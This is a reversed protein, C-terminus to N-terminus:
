TLKVIIQEEYKKNTIPNDPNNGGRENVAKGKVPEKGKTGKRFWEYEIDVHGIDIAQYGIKYLDYALVTATPGLAILILVNDHKPVNRTIADIIKQYIDFANTSPCIVRHMSKVNDYLDNGVGSRTFEGEILYVDRNDWISMIHKIRNNMVEYSKNRYDAYFRTFGQSGYVINKPTTKEICNIKAVLYQRCYNKVHLTLGSTTKFFLPICNLHGPENKELVEKLKTVLKENRSQFGIVGGSIMGYEGDGFRSVSLHRENILDITEKDSLIDFDIKRRAFYYGVFHAYMSFLGSNIRSIIM